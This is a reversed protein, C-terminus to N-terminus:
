ESWILHGAYKKKVEGFFARRYIKKLEMELYHEKLGYQSVFENYSENLIGLIFRILKLDIQEGVSWIISDTDVYIVEFGYKEIQTKSWGIIQRGLYTVTKAVLPNYIRSGLYATQGYLANLLTKLARQRDNYLKYNGAGYTEAQMLKKYRNREVTLKEIVQPLFGPVGQNCDVGDVTVVSPGKFKSGQTVTEQSLNWSRIISPYLSRLDFVVVNKQIGKTFNGVFAGEFAMGERKVKSPFVLKDHFMKLIFCDSTRAPSLTDELQCHSLRRLEDLFSFAGVKENIKVCLLVDHTNYKVLEEINNKWLYRVNVDSDTKGEGTEKKAIFDL